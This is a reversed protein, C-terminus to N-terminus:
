KKEPYSEGYKDLGIFEFYFEYHEVEQSEEMINRFEELNWNSKINNCGRCCAYFNRKSGNGGKSRPIIHNWTTILPVLKCGCYACRGGVEEMLKRKTGKALKM